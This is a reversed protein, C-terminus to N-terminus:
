VDLFSSFGCSRAIDEGFGDIINEQIGTLEPSQAMMDRDEGNEKNEIIVNKVYDANGTFGNVLEKGFKYLLIVQLSLSRFFISRLDFNLVKDLILLRPLERGILL